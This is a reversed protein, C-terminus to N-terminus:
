KKETPFFSFVTFGIGIFLIIGGICLSTQYDFPIGFFHIKWAFILEPGDPYKVVKAFCFWIITAGILTLIIGFKRKKLNKKHIRKQPADWGEHVKRMYECWAKTARKKEEPTFEKEESTM